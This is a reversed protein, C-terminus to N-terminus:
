ESKETNLRTVNTAQDADFMERQRPDDRTMNGGTDAFFISSGLPKRPVKAKIETTVEVTREGDPKIKLKLTLDGVMSTEIVAAVVDQLEESLREAIAGARLESLIETFERAM